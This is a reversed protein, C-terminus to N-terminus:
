FGGPNLPGPGSMKNGILTKEDGSKTRPKRYEATPPDDFRPEHTPEKWEEIQPLSVKHKDHHCGLAVIGAATLLGAILAKGRM